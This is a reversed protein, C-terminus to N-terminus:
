GLMASVAHCPRGPQAGEHARASHGHGPWHRVTCSQPRSTGSTPHTLIHQATGLKPRPPCCCTLCSHVGLAGRGVHAQPLCASQLRHATPHLPEGPARYPLLDRHLRNSHLRCQAAPGRCRHPQADEWTLSKATGPSSLPKQRGPPQTQTPLGARPARPGHATQHYGLGVGQCKSGEGSGVAPVLPANQLRRRSFFPRRTWGLLPAGAPAAASGGRMGVASGAPSPSCGRCSPSPHRCANRTHQRALHPARNSPLAAPSPADPLLPIGPDGELEHAPLAAQPTPPAPHLTQAAPPPCFRLCDGLHAPHPDGM